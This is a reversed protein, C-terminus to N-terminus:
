GAAPTDLRDCVKTGLGTRTLSEEVRADMEAKCLTEHLSTGFAFNGYISMPFPALDQFVMGIRSRLLCVDLDPRLIDEGDMQM